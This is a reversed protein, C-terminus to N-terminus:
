TPLSSIGLTNFPNPTAITEVDEPTTVSPLGNDGDNTNDFITLIVDEVLVITDAGDGAACTGVATDANAADIAQALSCGEALTIPAAGAAPPLTLLVAILRFRNSYM